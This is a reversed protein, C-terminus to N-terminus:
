VAGEGDAAADNVHEGGAVCLWHAQFEDTVHAFRQASEVWRSLPRCGGDIVYRDHRNAFPKIVVTVNLRYEFEERQRMASSDNDGLALVDLLLRSLGPFLEFGAVLFGLRSSM